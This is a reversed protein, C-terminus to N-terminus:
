VTIRWCRHITKRKNVYDEPITRATIEQVGSIRLGQMRPDFNQHNTSFFLTAGPRLLEVVGELLRPHDRAIDFAVNRTKTTSYSPPDVVALDFRQREQRAKKLFDFTHAQVLRNVEPDIGNLAMNERAWQIVSKSRDVSVTARAGGRAAYCSFSATYCYLNLFDKGAAMERVMQRTDRHDSFLGTDVYDTPNVLFKLDRESVVIKRDSHDIRRYRNGDQSGAWRHKLHVKDESVDLSRAAARGMMPLWEPVSQRRMYEGIVLHGGYWDVVARIEPIDWDYLRFVEIQQRKFRRHLHKFRKKVRNALMEAQRQIHEPTGHENM